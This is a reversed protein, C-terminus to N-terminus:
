ALTVEIHHLRRDDYLPEVTQVTYERGNWEVQQGECFAIGAPQSHRCDYFLVARAQVQRQTKDLVFKEGPDVRVFSLETRTDESDGWADATEPELLVAKHILLSKPIARM